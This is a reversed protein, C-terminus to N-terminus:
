KPGLNQHQLAPATPAMPVTLAHTEAATTRRVGGDVRQPSSSGGQSSATRIPPQFPNTRQPPGLNRPTHVTGLAVGPRRPGLASQTGLPGDMPRGAKKSTQIHQHCRMRKSSGTVSNIFSPRKSYGAAKKWTQVHQDCSMLRSDFSPRKSYETASCEEMSRPGSYDETSRREATEAQQLSSAEPNQTHQVGSQSNDYKLAQNTSAQRLSRM